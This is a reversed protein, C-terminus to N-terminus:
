VLYKQVEDAAEDGYAGRMRAIFEANTFEYEQTGITEVVYSAIVCGTQAARELSLGWSTAALFGSRFADGAGTPEIARVDPVGPITLTDGGQQTIRVGDAGLTTVQIGVRSLVEEASWGTKELIIHAEYENSFLLSAGDVLTRILEGDAFSLQQSPDAIFPYGAESCEVTHRAMAAPDNASIVVYDPTGVREVIPALSIDGAESMAGPYFSAIQAMTTDTTCVFRATHLTESIRVSDCDVGHAELWGRYEGFDKGAAGVLVPRLGLRGLGFCINPAVGGRRVDLADVLFSVSLNHLQDAILSESFTGGYTMLHDTAISGSLLLPM